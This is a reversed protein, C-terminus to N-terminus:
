WDDRSRRLTTRFPHVPACVKGDHSGVIQRLLGIIESSQQIQTASQAVLVQMLEELTQPARPVMGQRKRKRGWSEMDNKRRKARRVLRTSYVRLKDAGNRDTRGALRITRSQVGFLRNVPLNFIGPVKATM